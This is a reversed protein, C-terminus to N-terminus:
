GAGLYAEIVGKNKSVEEPTGEAIKTGYDLVAIRDCYDMIVRMNHEILIITVGRRLIEKILNMVNKIEGANMGSTPEDLLLIQPKISLAIAIELLQQFGHSLNRAFEERLPVIGLFNLIEMAGHLLDEEKKHCGPTGLVAELFGIKSHLHGATLMNELVTFNPFLTTLQFTRVIGKEAIKHPKLGVIDKGRFLIKGKTTRCIGTIMNYVTTKGAGNPGILGLIEGEEVCLNLEKVACLGGFYKTLNQIKLIAM